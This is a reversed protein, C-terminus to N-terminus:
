PRPARREQHAAAGIQLWERTGQLFATRRLPSSRPTRRFEENSNVAHFEVTGRYPLKSQLGQLHSLGSARNRINCLSAIRRTECGSCLWSRNVRSFRVAAVDCSQLCASADNGFKVPTSRPTEPVRVGTTVAGPRRHVPPRLRVGVQGQASCNGALGREQIDAQPCRGSGGGVCQRARIPWDMDRFQKTTIGPSRTIRSGASV